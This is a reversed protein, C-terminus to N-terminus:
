ETLDSLPASTDYNSIPYDLKVFQLSARLGEGTGVANGEGVSSGFPSGGLGGLGAFAQLPIIGIAMVIALLLSVIRKTKM